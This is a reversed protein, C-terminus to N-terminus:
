YFESVPLKLSDGGSPVGGSSPAAPWAHCYEEVVLRQSARCSIKM